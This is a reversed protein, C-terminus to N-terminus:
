AVPRKRRPAEALEGRAIMEALARTLFYRRRGIRTSAARLRRGWPQENCARRVSKRSRSLLKALSDYGLLPGYKKELAAALAAADIPDM